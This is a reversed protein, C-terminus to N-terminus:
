RRRPLTVVLGLALLLVHSPEPVLAGIETATLATDYIRADDIKGRFWQVGWGQLHGIGVPISAKTSLAIYSGWDISGASVGDIYISTVQGDYTGAVHYWRSMDLVQTSVVARVGPTTLPAVPEMALNGAPTVQLRYSFDTAGAGIEASFIPGAAGDLGDLYIWAAFTGVAVKVTDPPNVWQNVGTQVARGAIGFRDTTWTAGDLSADYGGAGDFATTGTGEDFDWHALMAARAQGAFALTVVVMM